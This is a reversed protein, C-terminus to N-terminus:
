ENKRKPAHPLLIDRKAAGTAPGRIQDAPDALAVLPATVPLTVKRVASSARAVLNKKHGRVVPVATVLMIVLSAVSTASVLMKTEARPSATLRMPATVLSTTPSAVTTAIARQSKSVSSAPHNRRPAIAPWTIMNVVPTARSKRLVLTRSEARPVTVNSTVKRVVTTASVRNSRKPPVSPVRRSATVPLTVRKAVTTALSLRRRRPPPLRPSPATVPMTVRKVATTAPSPNRRERPSNGRKMKAIARSTARRVVTTAPRRAEVVDEVCAAAGVDPM